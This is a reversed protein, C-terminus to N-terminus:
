RRKMKNRRLRKLKKRRRSSTLLQRLMRMRRRMSSSRWLRRKNLPHEGDRENEKMKEALKDKAEFLVAGYEKVVINGNGDTSFSDRSGRRFGYKNFFVDGDEDVKDIDLLDDENQFTDKRKLGKLLGKRGSAAGHKTDGGLGLADDDLTNTRAM